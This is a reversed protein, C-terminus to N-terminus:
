LFAHKCFFYLNVSLTMISRSHPLCWLIMFGVKECITICYSNWSNSAVCAVKGHNPWANQQFQNKWYPKWYKKMVMIQNWPAEAKQRVSASLLKAWTRTPLNHEWKKSSQSCRWDLGCQGHESIDMRRQIFVNRELCVLCSGYSRYTHWIHIWM